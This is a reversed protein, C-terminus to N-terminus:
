FVPTINLCTCIQQCINKREMGQKSIIKIMELNRVIGRKIM